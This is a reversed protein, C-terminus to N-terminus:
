DISGHHNGRSPQHVKSGELGRAGRLNQLYDDWMLSKSQSISKQLEAKACAAVKSRRETRKGRGLPRQMERIEGNWWRKWRACITIRKAKADLVKSLTAQCWEAKREVNDGMCEVGVHARDREWVKWLKEAAKDDEKSMTALNWGIVQVHDAEAQKDIIFEWRIVKYDCSTIPSVELITWGSIPRTALTLHITSEGDEGSRAWHHTPWDDNGIDLGYEAIIQEWFTV